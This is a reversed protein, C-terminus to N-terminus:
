NDTLVKITVVGFPDNDELNIIEYTVHDLEFTYGVGATIWEKQTPLSLSAALGEKMEGTPTQYDQLMINSFMVKHGGLERVTGETFKIVPQYLNVAIQGFPEDDTVHVIEYTNGDLDFTSGIGVTIWEKQTPLSLSAALGESMSGDAIPYDQLMINSFMVKHEGIMGVTGETFTHKYENM